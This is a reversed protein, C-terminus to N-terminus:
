FNLPSIKQGEPNLSSDPFEGHKLDSHASLQYQFSFINGKLKNPNKPNPKLTNDTTILWFIWMQHQLKLDMEKCHAWVPALLVLPVLSVSWSFRIM